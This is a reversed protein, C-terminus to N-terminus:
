LGGSLNNMQKRLRDKAYETTFGVIQQMARHFGTALGPFKPHKIISFEGPDTSPTLSSVCPKSFFDYQGLIPVQGTLVVEDTTMDWVLQQPLLSAKPLYSLVESWDERFM